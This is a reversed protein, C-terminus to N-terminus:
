LGLQHKAREAALQRKLDDNERELDEIQSQLHDMHHQKRQRSERAALTNRARKAAVKDGPDVVIDKLQGTRRRSKTVGGISNRHSHSPREPRGSGVGRVLPSNSPSDSSFSNNSYNRQMVTPAVSTSADPFLSPWNGTADLNDLFDPSTNYMDPTTLDTLAGSPPASGFLSPSDNLALEHPSVTQDVNTPMANYEAGGYHELGMLPSADFVGNDLDTALDSSFSTMYNELDTMAPVQASQQNVNTTSNRHLLSGQQRTSQNLQRNLGTSSSPASNSYLHSAQQSHTRAPLQAHASRQQHRVQQQAPATSDFLQFDNQLFQQDPQPRFAQPM